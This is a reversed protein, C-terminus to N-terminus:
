KGEVLKLFAEYMKTDEQFLINFRESTSGVEDKYIKNASNISTGALCCFVWDLEDQTELVITVPKFSEEERMVKM